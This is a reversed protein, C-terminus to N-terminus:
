PSPRRQPSVLRNNRVLYRGEIRIPIPAGSFPADATGPEQANIHLHPESTNGSNGVEAIADGARLGQGQRVRVSGKRFHGLLVDAEACRLIVHNGALHSRDMQPIPLDPLGDVAVLVEGECPAIVPKGFIAYRRPDAPLLGDARLGRRDLAVLDVGHGTGWYLRHAPVSQDLLTAHANVSPSTGGNAVLYVGPGLPSALDVVREDPTATGAWAVRVENAAYLTLGFFSALFAWGVFGQPWLPPSRRRVLGAVIVAVLLAGFAFPTWWPPFTWIGVFGVAVLMVGTALSQIWFGTTSRPPALALWAILGLPLFTQLLYLTLM